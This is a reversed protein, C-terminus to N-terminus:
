GVTDHHKGSLRKEVASTEAIIRSPEGDTDCRRSARRGCLIHSTRAGKPPLFNGFGKIGEEEITRYTGIYM